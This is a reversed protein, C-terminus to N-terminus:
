LMWSLTLRLPPFIAGGLMVAPMTPTGSGSTITDLVRVIDGATQPRDAPDKALREEYRRIAGAAVPDPAAVAGGVQPIPNAM